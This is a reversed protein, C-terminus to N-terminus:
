IRIMPVAIGSHQSRSEPTLNLILDNQKIESTSLTKMHYYTHEISQPEFNM